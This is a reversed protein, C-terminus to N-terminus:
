RKESVWARFGDKLLKEKLREANDKNEFAGVQVKYLGGVKTTFADYGKDLIKAKLNDANSVVTFAGVQVTYKASFGGSSLKNKVDERLTDMSKGHKPFWHMVDSHNSAYGLKYAESHCVINQETLGFKKCLEVCLDVANYYCKRFFEENKDANYGILTGGKYKVDAPECIEFQIHSNNYSGKSGSGCGWPRHDWPLTQVVGEDDVFANVCVKLNPRNWSRVFVEKNPQACGVSHVLIGKPTIKKGAKYCDNNTLINVKIDM